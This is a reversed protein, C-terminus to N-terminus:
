TARLRCVVVLPLQSISMEFFRNRAPDLLRFHRVWGPLVKMLDVFEKIIHGIAPQEFM